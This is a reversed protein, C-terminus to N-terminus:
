DIAGADTPIVEVLVSYGGIDAKEIKLRGGDGYFAHLRARTNDLGVSAGPPRQDAQLDSGEPGSDEVRVQLAGSDAESALIRIQGGNESVGIAHKLANEVLPQLIMSPVLRSKASEAIRIEVTLRDAFRTKEIDLYLETTAVEEAVTVETEPEARLSHRFFESLKNIMKTAKGADGKSVLANVSNLTNFLFHPNLQYRLLALQANRADAEVQALKFAEQRQLSEIRLLAERERQLMQYYKIGHYLAAWTFFVFMSPFLWGGFDPWLGREGTMLMFLTLRLAAWALAVLIAAGLVVVMRPLFAWNWVTRFIPRLPISLVLGVVSQSINHALYALEYQDYPVSLSLYTLLSIGTWGFLQLSWFLANDDGLVRVYARLINNGGGDM